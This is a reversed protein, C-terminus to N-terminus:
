VHNQVLNLMLGPFPVVCTEILIDGVNIFDSINKNFFLVSGEEASITSIVEGVGLVAIDKYLIKKNIFISKESVDKVVCKFISHKGVKM